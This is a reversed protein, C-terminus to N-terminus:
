SSTRLIEAYLKLFEKPVPLIHWFLILVLLFSQRAYDHSYTEFHENISKKFYDAFSEMNKRRKTYGSFNPFFKSFRPAVIV